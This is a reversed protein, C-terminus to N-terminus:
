PAMGGRGADGTDPVDPGLRFSDALESLSIVRRLEARATEDAM